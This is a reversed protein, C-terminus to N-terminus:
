SAGLYEAFLPHNEADVREFTAGIEQLFDDHERRYEWSREPISVQEWGGEPRHITLVERGRGSVIVLTEWNYEKARQLDNSSAMLRLKHVLPHNHIFVSDRAREFHEPPAFHGVRAMNQISIRALEEYAKNYEEDRSVPYKEMYARVGEDVSDDLSMFHGGSVSVEGAQSLLAKATESSLTPLDSKPDREEEGSGHTGRPPGFWGSGAGGKKDSSGALPFDKREGEWVLSLTGLELERDDDPITVPEDSYALTIHPQYGHDNRLEVGIAQLANELEGRWKQIDPSDFLAITPASEKGSLFSGHGGIQGTVPSLRNAAESIVQEVIERKDKATDMDLSGVTVHLKEPSEAGEGDLAIEQADEPSLFLLLWAGEVAKEDFSKDAVLQYEKEGRIVKQGVELAVVSV